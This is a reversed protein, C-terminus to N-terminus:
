KWKNEVGVIKHAEDVKQNIQGTLIHYFMVFDSGLSYFPYKFTAPRNKELGFHGVWAFGYGCLPMALLYWANQKVIALVFCTIVLSTGVFHFARNVPRAHETLYYPYFDWFTTYVKETSM